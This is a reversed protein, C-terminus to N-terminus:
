QAFIEITSVASQIQMEIKQTAEDYNDSIYVDDKNVMNINHFSINSLLRGSKVMLGANEPIYIDLDTAGAQINVTMHEQRDGIILDLDGVGLKLNLKKVPIKSLNLKGDVVSLTTDMEWPIDHNIWLTFNGAINSKETERHMYRLVAQKGEAFQQELNPIDTDLKALLEGHGDEINVKATELEIILKGEETAGDLFIEDAAPVIDAEVYKFDSKDKEFEFDKEVEDIICFGIFVVFVLIWALISIFRNRDFLLSIGAAIFIVPWLTRLAKTWDLEMVGVLDMIWIIGIFILVLGVTSKRKM